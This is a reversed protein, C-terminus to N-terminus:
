PYHNTSNSSPIPTTHKVATMIIDSHIISHNLPHM